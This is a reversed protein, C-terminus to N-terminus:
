WRPAGWRPTGWRPVAEAYAAHAPGFRRRLESEEAEVQHRVALVAPLWAGLAWGSRALLAWGLHGLAWAAYMPHRSRAYPGTSVLRDPDALRVDRVERWARTALVAGSVMLVLGPARWAAPPGPLRLRRVREALAAAVLPVAHQEPVPVNALRDRWVTSGNTM